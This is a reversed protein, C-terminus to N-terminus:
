LLLIHAKNTYRAPKNHHHITPPPPSDGMHHPYTDVMNSNTCTHNSSHTPTYSLYPSHHKRHNSYKHHIPPRHPIKNNAHQNRSIYHKRHHKNNGVNLQRRLILIYAYFIPHRPRAFIFTHQLATHPQHVHLSKLMGLRYFLSFSTSLTFFNLFIAFFPGKKAQSRLGLVSPACKSFETWSM